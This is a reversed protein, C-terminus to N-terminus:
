TTGSRALLRDYIAGYRDAMTAASYEARARALARDALTAARAPDELLTALASALAAPDAPPVLVGATGQDLAAPIEGVASAVIARRAFMAELVALPLGEALSPHVVIDARTLLRAIDPRLGLLHVRAGLGLREAQAQLAPREDGRGAIALHLDPFREALLALADILYRHGKVPYLNGVALLLRADPPLELAGGEPAPPVVPPVGNPVVAVRETALGLARRLIEALPSSVATFAGSWAAALRLLLRRRWRATGYLGGHMTIVHPIGVLRTACTGDFAQGFEHTHLLETRHRRLATALAAIGVPSLPGGLPIPDVTVSTGRLRAALWGEGAEPTFVVVADGHAAAQEALHAVVQEAGGPGDSEILYAIRRAPPTGTAAIM